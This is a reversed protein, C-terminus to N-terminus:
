SEKMIRVVTSTKLGVGLGKQQIKKAIWDDTHLSSRPFEKRLKTHAEQIDKNRAETTLKRAQQRKNQKQYRPKKEKAPKDACSRLRDIDINLAKGDFYCLETIALDDGNIELRIPRSHLTLAKRGDNGKIFGIKIFDQAPSQELKTNIGLLRHIIKALQFTTIKWRRLSELSFDLVGMEEQMDEDSCLGVARIPKGNKERIDVDVTCHRYCYRCTISDARKAHHLLGLSSFCELAGKPWQRTKYDSVLYAGDESQSLAEILESLVDDLAM